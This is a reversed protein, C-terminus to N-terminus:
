LLCGVSNCILATNANSKYLGKCMLLRVLTGPMGYVKGGKLRCQATPRPHSASPRKVLNMDCKGNGLYQHEVSMGAFM